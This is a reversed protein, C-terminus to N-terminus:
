PAPYLTADPSFHSGSSTQTARQRQAEELHRQLDNVHRETDEAHREADKLRREAALRLEREMEMQQRIERLEDSEREKLGDLKAQRAEFFAERLKEVKEAMSEDDVLRVTKYTGAVQSSRGNETSDVDASEPNASTHTIPQDQGPGPKKQGGFITQMTKCVLAAYFYCQYKFLHYDRYKESAQDLIVALDLLSPPSDKPFTITYVDRVESGQYGFAVEVARKWGDQGNWPIIVIDSATNTPLEGSSGFSVLTEQPAVATVCVSAQTESSGRRHRRREEEVDKGKCIRREFFMTMEMDPWKSNGSPVIVSVAVLEHQKGKACKLLTMSKLPCKHDVACIERRLFDATSHRISDNLSVDNLLACAIFTGKPPTLQLATNMGRCIRDYLSSVYHFM